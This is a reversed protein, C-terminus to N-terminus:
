SRPPEVSVGMENMLPVFADRIHERMANEAELPDGGFVADLLSRHWYDPMDSQSRRSKVGRWLLWFLNARRLTDSLTKHGTLEAMRMHFLHHLESINRATEDSYRLEDLETALRRLEDRRAPSANVCLIRVVQCEIAERLAYMDRVKEGTPITVICGWQPRYEVLGDQELKKMAELVPIQSVGLMEALKRRPLRCGPALEGTTLKGLLIQYVKEASTLFATGETAPAAKLVPAMRHM